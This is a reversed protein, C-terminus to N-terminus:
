QVKKKRLILAIMAAAALMVSVGIVPFMWNGTSGTRPLEFGRTNVVTLPAFANASDDHAKMTVANGDVTASATLMHHELHTQIHTYRSDNQVVGLVDNDYWDCLAGEATGIVVEIDDKLLTYGNDTEIETITYTDDELNHVFLSGDATPTFVTADAEATVHGTAYYIGDAGLQATVYYGDSDNHLLMKVASYDGNNDSFQKTLDIGYAFLHNDDILTDKYDPTNTRAWTMVVSNRNGEDGNVLTANSNVTAAYTLRITCDSYGSNVMSAGTYVRRNANIDNLGATTMAVTMVSSNAANTDYQVSFMPTSDTQRWTAVKNTCAEDTFIEIVVDNRNYTLGEVLTDVFTLETLYTAESTISPLKSRVQYEIKDGGSATATHAYGDTIDTASGENHGTDAKAERLTKELTPIGTLNKPYICVDYIWRNGGDNANDGDVSTMPLAVFFPATTSTVMEPVKTEVVLYLGLPLSSATTKGYSDTEPMATGGNSKVYNELANKVTTSNAALAASLGNILTDSQYYYTLVGGVTQDAATYRSAHTLGIASLLTDTTTNVPIGYLVEVHSQGSESETYTRVDAVRLYTFEVGKLAYGYAIDGNGLDSVRSSNGLIDNVGATDKVGTSVYSSDWVGDREANTLDYKYIELSGVRSTDITADAVNAAFANLGSSCFCAVLMLLAFFKKISKM